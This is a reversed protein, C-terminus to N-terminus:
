VNKLSKPFVRNAIIQWTPRINAKIEDGCKECIYRESNKYKFYKVKEPEYNKNKLCLPCKEEM